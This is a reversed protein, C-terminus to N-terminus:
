LLTLAYATKLDVIEGRALMARVEDVAVTRKTIDEDEDPKHPSDAPPERLDWVRFFILEEDCFGPAPYLARVRELFPWTLDCTPCTTKFFAYVTEGKPRPAPRGEADLLAVPPFSIGPELVPM